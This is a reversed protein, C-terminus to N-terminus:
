KNDYKNLSHTKFEFVQLAVVRIMLEMSLDQYLLGSLM